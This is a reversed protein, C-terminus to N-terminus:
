QCSLKFMVADEETQFCAMIQYYPKRMTIYQDGNHFSYDMSTKCRVLHGNHQKVMAEYPSNDLKAMFAEAVFSWEITVYEEPTPIQIM